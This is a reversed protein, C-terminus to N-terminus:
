RCQLIKLKNSITGMTLMDYSNFYQTVMEGNIDNLNIRYYLIIDDNNDYINFWIFDGSSKFDLIEFEFNTKNYIIKLKKLKLDLTYLSYDEIESYFITTSDYITQDIDLNKQSQYITINYCIFSIIEQSYIQTKLSFFLIFPLVYIKM